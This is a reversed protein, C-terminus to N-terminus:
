DQGRGAGPRCFGATSRVLPPTADALNKFDTMSANNQKIEAKVQNNEAKNMRQKVAETQVALATTQHSLYAHLGIQAALVLALIIGIIVGFRATSHYVGEYYLEQQRAKPLLNIIKM